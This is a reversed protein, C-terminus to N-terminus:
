LKRNRGSGAIAPLDSSAAGAKVLGGSKSLPTLARVVSSTTSGSGLHDTADDLDVTDECLGVTMAILEAVGNPDDLSLAREGLLNKWARTISIDKGRSGSTALIFFVNWNKQAEVLIEQIPLDREITDGFFQKVADAEVAGYYGEDGTIFLYGKRNRKSFADAKVKRAAFYLALDYAEKDQGGGGGEIYIKELDADMRNDSEFQGVQFPVADGSGAYFSGGGGHHDGIAGFAIHPDKIFGKGVILAMLAPLKKQYVRPIDGMSGTVDFFVAIPVSDPHDASDCSERVKGRIDLDPHLKTATKGSKVNATHAFDPTSTAAKLRAADDYSSTSWNGGGM